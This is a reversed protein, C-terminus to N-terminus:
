FLSMQKTYNYDLVKNIAKVVDSESFKMLPKSDRYVEPSIHFALNDIYLYITAKDDGPGIYTGGSHRDSMHFDKLMIEISVKSYKRLKYKASETLLRGFISYYPELNKWEDPLTIPDRFGHIQSYYDLSGEPLEKKSCRFSIKDYSEFLVYCSWYGATNSPLYKGCCPCHHFENEITSINFGGTFVHFPYFKHNDQNLYDSKVSNLYDHINKQDM